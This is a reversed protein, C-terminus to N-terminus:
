EKILKLIEDKVRVFYIGKPFYEVSVMEDPIVTQQLAMKGTVDLVTIVTPETIGAICFSESVLTPFIRINSVQLNELAAPEVIRFDEWVDASRYLDGTGAPINLTINAIPQLYFVDPTISIPRDWAVNITKLNNIYRFAKDGISIVSKPITVTALQDCGSFAYEGITTVGDPIVVSLIQYCGSFAWNSIGTIGAEMEISKIKSRFDSWPIEGETIYGQMEGTGSITLSGTSSDFAWTLSAGCAGSTEQAFGCVATMMCVTLLLLKKTMFAM